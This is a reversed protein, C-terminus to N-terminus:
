AIDQAEGDGMGLFILNPNGMVNVWIYNSYSQELFQRSYDNDAAAFGIGFSDPPRFCLSDGQKGCTFLGIIHNFDNGSMIFICILCTSIFSKEKCIRSKASFERLAPASSMIMVKTVLPSLFIRTM